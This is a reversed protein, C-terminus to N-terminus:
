LEVLLAVVPVDWCCLVCDPDADPVCCDPEVACCPDGVCCLPVAPADALVEVVSGEDLVADPAVALRFVTCRESTVCAKLLVLTFVTDLTLKLTDTPVVMVSSTRRAGSGASTTRM